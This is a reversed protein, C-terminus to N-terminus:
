EIVGDAIALVGPPITLGLVKAIRLNIVFEFKTSQLVPLDGPKEGKLIRGVYIGCQRFQEQDDTGYSMLGGAEPYERKEYIAPITHRVALAFIQDRRDIFLGDVGVVLGGVRQEVMVVFAEEIARETSATLVLLKRGLAVAAERADQSDPEANPNNQNVLLALPAPKPVIENLLQLRKSFLVNTFMSIGTINGGPQNLSAVLGEKVPDEGMVFVIPITATSAKIARVSPPGVAFIVSPNRRVLDAALMPLRDFQSNAYRYEIALNRGEVYGIQNLGQQFGPVRSLAEMAASFLSLYGVLPSEAQQARVAVPWPIASGAIVKIFDRRRM